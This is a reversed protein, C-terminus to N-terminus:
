SDFLQNRVILANVGRSKQGGEKLECLPVWQLAFLGNRAQLNTESKTCASIKEAESKIYVNGQFRQCFAVRLRFNEGYRM